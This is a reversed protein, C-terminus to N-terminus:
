LAFHSKLFRGNMEGRDARCGAKDKKRCGCLVHKGTEANFARYGRGYCRTCGPNPEHPLDPLVGRPGINHDM